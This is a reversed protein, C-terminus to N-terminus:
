YWSSERFPELMYLLTSRVVIEFVSFSESFHSAILADPRDVAGYIVDMAGPIELLEPGADVTLEAAEDPVIREVLAGLHGAISDATIRHALSSLL